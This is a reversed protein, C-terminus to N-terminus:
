KTHNRWQKVEEKLAQHTITQGTEIDKESEEIAEIYATELEQDFSELVEVFSLEQLLALFFDKKDTQIKVILTEM